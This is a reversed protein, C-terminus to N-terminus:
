GAKARPRRRSSMAADDPDSLTSRRREFCEDPVGRRSRALRSADVFRATIPDHYGSVPPLEPDDARHYRVVRAMLLDRAWKGVLSALGVLINGADADRVFAVEGV